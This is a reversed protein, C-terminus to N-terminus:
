KLFWEDTVYNARGDGPAFRNDVYVRLYTRGSFSYTKLWVYSTVFGFKYTALQWGNGRDSATVTGWDCDSPHCKGFMRARYFSQGGTCHGSTDCLRVDGCEFTIVARTMSRTNPDINHWDGALAPTSCLAYAPTASATGLLVSATGSAGVVLVALVVSRWARLVLEIM